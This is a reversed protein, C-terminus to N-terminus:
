RSLKSLTLYKEEASPCFLRCTEPSSFYPLVKDAMTSENDSYSGDIKRQEEYTEKTLGWNDGTRESIILANLFLREYEAKRFVSNGFFVDGKLFDSPKMSDNIIAM